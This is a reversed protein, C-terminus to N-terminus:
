QGSYHQWYTEIFARMLKLLDSLNKIYITLWVIQPFFWWVRLVAIRTRLTTYKIKEWKFLSHLYQWVKKTKLSAIPASSAIDWVMGPGSSGVSALFRGDPSCSSM